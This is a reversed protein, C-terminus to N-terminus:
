EEEGSTAKQLIDEPKVGIKDCMEKFYDPNIFIQDPQNGIIMSEIFRDLQGKSDCQVVFPKRKM